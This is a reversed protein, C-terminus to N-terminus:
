PTVKHDYGLPANSADRVAQDYQAETVEAGEPWQKAGKAAAFKWADFGTHNKVKAWAEITRLSSDVVKVEPTFDGSPNEDSM